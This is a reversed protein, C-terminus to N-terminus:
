LKKRRVIKSEREREERKRVVVRKIGIEREREKNRCGLVFIIRSAIAAVLATLGDPLAM